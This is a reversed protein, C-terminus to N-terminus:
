YAPLHASNILAHEYIVANAKQAGAAGFLLWNARGYLSNHLENPASFANRGEVPFLQLICSNVAILPSVDVNTPWCKRM